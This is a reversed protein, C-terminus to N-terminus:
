DFIVNHLDKAQKATTVFRSWEPQLHNMFKTNVQIKKMTMKIINMDNILKAYRWYYSYISEGLESTFTDFEDYLKSKCEQLALKTGEM